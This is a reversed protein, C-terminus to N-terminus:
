LSTQLNCRAVLVHYVHTSLHGQFRIVAVFMGSAKESENILGGPFIITGHATKVGHIAFHAIWLLPLPLRLLYHGLFPDFGPPPSMFVSEGM